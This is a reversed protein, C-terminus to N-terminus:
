GEFEIEIGDRKKEYYIMECTISEPLTGMAKYTVPKISVPKAGIFGDIGRSEEEPEALRYDVGRVAAVEKLVPGQIVLGVFTKAIVLDEVWDRIMEGGIKALASRFSEVMRSIKDTAREIADPKRQTYWERWDAYRSGRFEQILESMQGVVAPRTGQAYQNALNLLPSVYKPLDPSPAGVDDRIAAFKLKKKM